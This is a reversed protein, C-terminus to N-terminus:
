EHSILYFRVDVDLLELCSICYSLCTFSKLFVNAAGVSTGAKQKIVLGAILFLVLALLGGIIMVSSDNVGQANEEDDTKPAVKVGDNGASGVNNKTFQECCDSIECNTSMQFCKGGARDRWQIAPPDSYAACTKATRFAVCTKILTQQVVDPVEPEGGGEADCCESQQCLERACGDQICM